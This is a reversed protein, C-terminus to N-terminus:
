ITFDISTRPPSALAAHESRSPRRAAHLRRVRRDTGWEIYLRTPGDSTHDRSGSDALCVVTRSCPHVPPLTATLKFTKLSSSSPKSRQSACCGSPNTRFSALDGVSCVARQSWMSIVRPRPFTRHVAVDPLTQAMSAAANSSQASAACRPEGTRHRSQAGYARCSRLPVGPSPRHRRESPRRRASGRRGHAASGGDRGSEQV